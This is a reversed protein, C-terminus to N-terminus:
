CVYGLKRFEWVTEPSTCSSKNYSISSRQHLPLYSLYFELDRRGLSAISAGDRSNSLALSPSARPLRTWNSTDRSRVSAQLQVMKLTGKLEFQGIIRHHHHRPISM